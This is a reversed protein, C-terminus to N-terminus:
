IWCDQRATHCTHPKPPRTEPKGTARKAPLPGRPGAMAPGVGRIEELFQAYIPIESLLGGLRRFQAEEKRLLEIYQEVMVAEAWSSILPSPTFNKRTLRVIGDTIKDWEARLQKLLKDAEKKEEEKEGPQIGLKSKYTGCIRNGTEIRLKQLDYVGRVIPRIQKQYTQM